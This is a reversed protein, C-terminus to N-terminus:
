VVTGGHHHDEFDSIFECDCNFHGLGMETRPVRLIHNRKRIPFESEKVRCHGSLHVSQEHKLVVRYKGYSLCRTLVGFKAKNELGTRVKDPLRM